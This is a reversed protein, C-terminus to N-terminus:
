ARASNVEEQSDETRAHTMGNWAEGVDSQGQVNSRCIAEISTGIQTAEVSSSHKASSECGESFSSFSAPSKRRFGERLRIM